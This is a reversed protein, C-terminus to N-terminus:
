KRRDRDRDRSRFLIFTLSFNRRANEARAPWGRRAATGRAGRVGRYFFGVSQVAGGGRPRVEGREVERSSGEM